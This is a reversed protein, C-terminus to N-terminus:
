KAAGGAGKKGLGIAGKIAQGVGGFHDFFHHLDGGTSHYVLALVLLTGMVAAVAAFLKWEHEMATSIMQRVPSGSRARSSSGPTSLREVLDTKSGKTDLGKQKCAARLADADMTQYYAKYARSRHVPNEMKAAAASPVSKMPSKSATVSKPAM